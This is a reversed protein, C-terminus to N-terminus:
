VKKKNWSENVIQMVTEEKLNMSTLTVDVDMTTRKDNGIMSAILSSSLRHLWTMGYIKHKYQIVFKSLYKRNTLHEM